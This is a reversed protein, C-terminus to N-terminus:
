AFHAIKANKIKYTTFLFYNRMSFSLIACLIGSSHAIKWMLINESMIVSSSWIKLKPQEGVVFKRDMEDRLVKADTMWNKVYTTM